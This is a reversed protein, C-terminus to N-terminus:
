LQEEECIYVSPMTVGLGKLGGECGGWGIGPSRPGGIKSYSRQRALHMHNRLGPVQSNSPQPGIDTMIYQRIDSTWQFPNLIPSIAGGPSSMASSCSSYSASPPSSSSMTSSFTPSSPSLFSMNISLGASRAALGECTSDYNDQTCATIVIDDTYMARARRDHENDEEEEEEEEYPLEPITTLPTCLASMPGSNDMHMGMGMPITIALNSM